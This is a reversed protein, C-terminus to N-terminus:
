VKTRPLRLLRKRKARTDKECVLYLYKDSLGRYTGLVFVKANSVAVQIWHLQGSHLGYLAPKHEYDNLAAQLQSIWRKAFALWCM